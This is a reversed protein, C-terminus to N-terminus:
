FRKTAFPRLLGQAADRGALRFANPSSNVPHHEASELTIRIERLPAINDTLLVDLLGFVAWDLYRENRVEEDSVSDVIEFQAAPEIRVKIRAFYRKPGAPRDCEGIVTACRTLNGSPADVLSDFWLRLYDKM